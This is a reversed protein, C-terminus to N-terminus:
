IIFTSHRRPASLTLIEQDVSFSSIRKSHLNAPPGTGGHLSMTSKRRPAMPVIDQYSRHNRPFGAMSQRRVPNFNVPPTTSVVSNSRVTPNVYLTISLRKATKNLQANHFYYAVCLFVAISVAATPGAIIIKLPLEKKREHFTTVAQSDVSSDTVIVIANKSTQNKSNDSILTMNSDLTEDYTSTGSTLHFFNEMIVTTNNKSILQKNLKERDDNLLQQCLLHDMLILVKISVLVVFDWKM